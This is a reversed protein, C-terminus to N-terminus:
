VTEPILVLNLQAAAWEYAWQNASPSADWDIYDQGSISLGGVVLIDTNPVIQEPETETAPIIIESVNQLQYDFYASNLFNDWSSSLMFNNAQKQEGNQWTIVPQIKM